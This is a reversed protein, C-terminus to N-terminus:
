FFPLTRYIYNSVDSIYYEGPAVSVCFNYQGQLNQLKENSLICFAIPYFHLNGIIPGVSYFQKLVVLEISPIIFSCKQSIKSVNKHEYKISSFYLTYITLFIDIYINTDFKRKLSNELDHWVNMKIPYNLTMNCAQKNNWSRRQAIHKFELGDNIM